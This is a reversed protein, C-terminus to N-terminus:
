DKVFDYINPIKCKEELLEISTPTVIVTVHPHYNENLYEILPSAAEQLKKLDETKM